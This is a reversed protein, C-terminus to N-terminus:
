ARHSCLNDFHPGRAPLVLPMVLSPTLFPLERAENWVQHILSLPHGLGRPSGSTPSMPPDTNWPVIGEVPHGRGSVGVGRWGLQLGRPPLSAPLVSVSDRSCLLEPPPMEGRQRYSLVDRFRVLPASALTNSYSM